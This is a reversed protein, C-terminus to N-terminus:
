PPTRFIALRVFSASPPGTAPLTRVMMQHYGNGQDVSSLTEFVGAGRSWVALDPSLEPTVTLDPDDSRSLFSLTILAQGGSEELASVIGGDGDTPDNPNGGLAFEGDNILGDHDPDATTGWLTPEKLLDDLDTQSFHERRWVELPTAAPMAFTFDDVGYVVAGELQNEENVQLVGTVIVETFGDPDIFGIFAHGVPAIDGPYMAGFGDLVYGPSNATTRNPFLIGVDDLDPNTNIWFGIGHIPTSSTVRISSPLYNDYLGWSGSRAWNANTTILAAGGGWLDQAASDWTLGQTTISASWNQTADNSRVGDWDAGELGETLADHGLQAIRALYAAEDKYREVAALAPITAALVLIPVLKMAPVPLNQTMM